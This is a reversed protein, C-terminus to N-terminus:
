RQHEPPISKGFTAHTPTLPTATTSTIGSTAEVRYQRGPLFPAELAVSKGDSALTILAPLPTTGELVRLTVPTVSAPEAAASLSVTVSPWPDSEAGDAPTVATVTFTDTPNEGDDPGTRDGGCAMLCMLLAATPGRHLERLLSM